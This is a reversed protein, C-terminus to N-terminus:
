GYGGTKCAPWCSVSTKQRNKARFYVCASSSTILNAAVSLVFFLFITKFYKLSSVKNEKITKKKKSKILM